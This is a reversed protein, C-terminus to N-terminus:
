YCDRIHTVVGRNKLITYAATKETQSSFSSRVVDKLEENSYSEYKSKLKHYDDGAEKLADFAGKALGWFLEGFLGM